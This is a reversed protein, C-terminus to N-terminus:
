EVFNSEYKSSSIAEKQSTSVSQEMVTVIMNDEIEELKEEYGDDSQRHRSHNWQTGKTNQPPQSHARQEHKSEQIKRVNRSSRMRLKKGYFDFLLYKKYASLQTPLYCHGHEFILVRNINEFSDLGELCLAKVDTWEFIDMEMSHNIFHLLRAVTCIKQKQTELKDLRNFSWGAKREIYKEYEQGFNGGIIIVPLAIVLLGTFLTFVCIFRGVVSEPVMDGYGVTTVTVFAWWASAPISTFKTNKISQECVYVLSSCIIIELFILTLFLGFSGVSAIFTKQLIEMYEAFRPSKMLRFVRALRIVRIVRLANSGEAGSILEIWFPIIAVFDILNLLDWFFVCANRSCVIRIIYEITFIVSVIYEIWNFFLMAAPDNSFVPLTEIIYSLTSILIMIMIFVQIFYSWQSYKENDFLNHLTTKLEQEKLPCHRCHTSYKKLERISGVDKIKFIKWFRLPFRYWCTPIKCKEIKEFLEEDTQENPTGGHTTSVPDFTSEEYTKSTDVTDAMALLKKLKKRRERKKDFKPKLLESDDIEDNNIVYDHPLYRDNELKLAPKFKVSFGDNPIFVTDLCHIIEDFSLGDVMQNNIAVIKSGCQTNSRAYDTFRWKIYANIGNAGAQLEVGLDPSWFHSIYDDNFKLESPTSSCYKASSQHKPDLFSSAFAASVNNRTSQMDRTESHIFETFEEFSIKENKDFDINNFAKVIDMDTLDEEGIICLCASSFESLNLTGSKSNDFQDFIERLRDLAIHPNPTSATPSLTESTQVNNYTRHYLTYM